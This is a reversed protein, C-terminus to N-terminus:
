KLSDKRVFLLIFSIIVMLVSLIYIWYDFINFVEDLEIDLRVITDDVVLVDSVFEKHGDAEVSLVYTGPEVFFSYEGDIDTEQPNANSASVYLSREGNVVSYLTVVAGPIRVQNGDDDVSFVYGYPDISVSLVSKSTSLDKFITLISIEQNGSLSGSSLKGVYKSTFTDFSLKVVMEGLVAYVSEIASDTHTIRRVPISVDIESDEYVSVKGKGKTEIQNNSVAIVVGDEQNLDSNRETEQIIRKVEEIEEDTIQSTVEAIKEGEEPGEIVPTPTTAVVPVFAWSAYLTVNSAGLQLTDGAGYVTGTGNALTNWGNFTYGTKTLSGTNGPVTVQSNYNQTIVPPLSGGTNTNGNFSVTYSKITWKAYLIRNAAPMNFTNGAVYTTGSGNALTNWGIFTYGTKTLSGTNSPVTVQSNYNQTIASPLSGGTNTNGSFSVTYSSITWQAFLTIDGTSGLTIETIENTFEAESFWGAFTYGTKTPALLTITSTGINYTVPNSGNNTGGDLNYTINYSNITWQAFLTVDGTSGLTIETIENTFEAESFWGEFTYGTKTPALFTITSTGINYTAPNSGNNTGGELNYTIDYETPSWQAFLTSNTAPMNFTDDELYATGSGNALTNWGNFTYGMKTLAGTNGPVTVQSNYDQTIATPLSGGSNTNGDFTITYENTTWQAFLTVDGTSGITIETIENTFEAESFWGEFTYGTRTPELLTITITEINYTAPNSGNNTGGDLNYIIDYDTLTLERTYAKSLDSVTDGPAYSTSGDSWTVSVSGPPFVPSPPLQFSSFSNLTFANAGINTVSSPLSISSLDNNCFANNGLYTVGDPITVSTLSNNYFAGTGITKVNSGLTLSSISNSYFAYNGISEVGNGIVVTALDNDYFSYEGISNVTNPLTLNTLANSYFTYGGISELNSSLTLSSINNGYFVHDGLTIVSDPLTVSTLQNGAFASIGISEVDSGLSLNTLLNNYFAERGISTIGDPVTVSTINNYSFVGEGLTTLGNGITVGSIANNAFAYNGLSRVSNPIVLNGSISNYNFADREITTVSSPISISGIDNYFFADHAITQISNGLTVSTLSNYAFASDEILTITDPIIVSTLTGNSFSSDGIVNITEYDLTDPISIDTDSGLYDLIVVYDWDIYEYEYDGSITAFSDLVLSGIYFPLM